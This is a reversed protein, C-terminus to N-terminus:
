GIRIRDGIEKLLNASIGPINQLDELSQFRSRSRFAVIRESLADGVGPLSRLEDASARNLFVAGPKAPDTTVGFWSEFLGGQIGVKSGRPRDGSPLEARVFEADIARAQAPDDSDVVFDGRLRVWVQNIGALDKQLFRRGIQTEPDFVFAAGPAMPNPIEKAQAIIGAANLDFEVPIIIGQVSCWCHLGTRVDQPQQNDILVEFVHDDMQNPPKSPDAFNTVVVEREFGIVFGPVVSGDLRTIFDQVLYAPQRHQWSLAVIRDLDPELGPGPPGQPGPAGQPGAEGQPGQPGTEGPAGPAGTAGIPGPPGEEGAPGQPGEPGPPGAPGEPGQQGTGSELACLIVQRLTETSPALPRLRNDIQQDGVFMGPDYNPIAALLVCADTPCEPCGELAQWFIEACQGEDVELVSVGGCPQPDGGQGAAYLIRGDQTLLLDQPGSIVAVPASVARAPDSEFREGNAIRLWSNGSADRQLVYAWHGSPSAQLAVPDDAGLDVGSGSEPFVAPSEQVYFLRLLHAATAVYLRQSDGSVALRLPTDDVLVTYFTPSGSTLTDVRAAKVHNDAAAAEAIFLWMGDPSAALHRPDSGTNVEAYRVSGPAGPPLSPDVGPTNIDTTWVIVRRPSANPDLSFVRGDAASVALQPPNTGDALPLDNVTLPNALDQVDIVRLSYTEPPGPLHRVVYLYRGTPSIALDVAAAEVDITRRLCHNGTDYAVIQAPDASTLVYLTDGTEDLALRQAGDLNLTTRWTLRASAAERGQPEPLDNVRSLEVSFTELVRSSQCGNEDCGCESYLAPVFEVPCEQYCLSILLHQGPNGNGNSGALLRTLDVDVPEKVLIERGCCDLALGPQIVVFRNRCEPQPHQVVRLGCVTGWGHLYRNHQRHKAIHYSQEARFDREALFQGTFYNLREEAPLDCALCKSEDKKLNTLM